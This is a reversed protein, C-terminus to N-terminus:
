LEDDEEPEEFEELDDDADEDDFDEGDFDDDDFVFDEDEEEDEDEDHSKRRGDARLGLAGTELSIAWSAFRLETAPGAPTDQEADAEADKPLDFEPATLWEFERVSVELLM